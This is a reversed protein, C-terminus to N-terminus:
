NRYDRFKYYKPRSDIRVHLWYVGLGATSLWKRKAGIENQYAEGISKWFAHIQDEAANRIFNGMHTYHHHEGKPTPSVLIADKGLNPFTAVWENARFHAKFTNAEPKVSTLSNSKVLVFEYPQELEDKTSSPNEWFFATFPCDKLLSSYYSRFSAVTIWLQILESFSLQKENEFITYKLIRNKELEEIRSTWM